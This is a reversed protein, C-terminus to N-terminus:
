WRAPISIRRFPETASVPLTPRRVQDPSSPANSYRSSVQSRENVLWLQRCRYAVIFVSHFKGLLDSPQGHVRDM